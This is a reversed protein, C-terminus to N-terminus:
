KANLINVLVEGVMEEASLRTLSTHFSNGRAVPLNSTPDILTITLELLYSRIDWVWRSAYIIIVDPKYSPKIETGTTVTYGRKVLNLEILKYINGTGKDGQEEAIYFSRYKSIDMGPSKTATARNSACGIIFFMVILLAVIKKM